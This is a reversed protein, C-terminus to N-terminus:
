VWGDSENKEFKRYPESLSRQFVRLEHGDRLLRDVITSGIFGSGGFVIYKM